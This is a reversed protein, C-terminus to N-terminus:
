PNKHRPGKDPPPLFRLDFQGAFCDEIYVKRHEASFEPTGPELKSEGTWHPNTEWFEKVANLNTM